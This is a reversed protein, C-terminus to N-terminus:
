AEESTSSNAIAALTARIRDWGEQWDTSDYPYNQMEDMLTSAAAAIAAPRGENHGAELTTLLSPYQRLLAQAQHSTGNWYCAEEGLPPIWLAGAADLFDLKQDLPWQATEEEISDQTHDSAELSTAAAWADVAIRSMHHESITHGTPTHRILRPPSRRPQTQALSHQHQYDQETLDCLVTYFQEQSM